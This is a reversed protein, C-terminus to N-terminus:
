EFILARQEKSREEMIRLAQDIDSKMVNFRKEYNDVLDNIFQTVHARFTKIEESEKALESTTKLENQSLRTIIKENAENLRAIVDEQFTREKEELGNVIDDTTKKFNDLDLELTQLRQGMDDDRDKLSDIRNNINKFDNLLSSFENRLNSMESSFKEIKGLIKSELKETRSKQDGAFSEFDKIEEGLKNELATVKSLQSSTNKELLKMEEALKDKLLDQKGSIQSISKGLSNLSSRLGSISETHRDERDHIKKVEKELSKLEDLSKDIEKKLDDVLEIRITKMRESIETDLKKGALKVEEGLKERMLFQKSEIKDASKKVSDIMKKLESIEKEDRGERGARGKL